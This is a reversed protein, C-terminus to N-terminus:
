LQSSWMEMEDTNESNLDVETWTENKNRTFIFEFFQDAGLMHTKMAWYTTCRLVLASAM